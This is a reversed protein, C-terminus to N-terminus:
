SRRFASACCASLNACCCRAFRAAMSAFLRPSVSRCASRSAVSCRRFSCYPSLGSASFLMMDSCFFVQAAASPTAQRSKRCRSAWATTRM